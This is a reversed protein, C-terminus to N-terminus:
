QPFNSTTVASASPTFWVASTDPYHQELFGTGKQPGMIFLATALADATEATDAIVTVGLSEVASTMTAPDIIHHKIVPKGQQEATVFQQYDGSGCVGKERVMVTRFLERDRPHRIGITWDRDGFCYFDGGAEVIGAPIGIGKLTAVAADIITGKAIGGLDLAMGPKELRVRHTEADFLLRRYNVLDKKSHAIADDLAYYLPSTTVAGITPDFVGDTQRSIRAAKELLTYAKPTPTSWETGATRNIRGISGQPNRFDFDRQLAHMTTIAKRAAESAATQSPAVLTLNVITGMAVDSFHYLEDQENTHSSSPISHVALAVIIFALLCSSTNTLAPKLHLRDGLAQALLPLCAAMGTIGALVFTTSLSQQYQVILGGFMPGCILGIGSAMNTVGFVTGKKPLQRAALHMSVPLSIAAGVGMITGAVLFQPFTQCSGVAIMGGSSILMGTITLGTKSYGQFVRTAVPLCAFTVLGPIAFAMAIILGSQGLATSLAIPYFAMLLGLGLTRGFIALLIHPLRSTKDLSISSASDCRPSAVPPSAPMLRMIMFAALAMCCSLGLLVPPMSRDLYLLGGILPGIFFAGNFVMAHQGFHRALYHEPMSTALAALGTPRIIGSALGLCFQIGYLTVLEPQLFYAFPALAGLVTALLLSPRPGFRDVALGSLPSALLRALYFAAFASGIWAGSVKDDLSALPITFTFIGLGLASLFSCSLIAALSRRTSQTTIESTNTKM